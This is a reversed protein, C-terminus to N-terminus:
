QQQNKISQEGQESTQKIADSISSLCKHFWIFIYFCPPFVIKKSKEWLIIFMFIWFVDPLEFVLIFTISLPLRSLVLLLYIICIKIFDHLYNLTIYKGVGAWRSGNFAFSEVVFNDIVTDGWILQALSSITTHPCLTLRICKKFSAHWRWNNRAGANNTFRRSHYHRFRDKTRRSWIQNNMFDRTRNRNHCWLILPSQFLMFCARASSSTCTM